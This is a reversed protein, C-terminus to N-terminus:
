HHGSLPNKIKFPKLGAPWVPSALSAPSAYSASCIVACTSPNVRTLLSRKCFASSYSTSHTAHSTAPAPRPATYGANDHLSMTSDVNDNVSLSFKSVKKHGTLYVRLEFVHGRGVFLPHAGSEEGAEAESFTHLRCAM